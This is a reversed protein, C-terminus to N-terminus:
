LPAFGAEIPELSKASGTFTVGLSRRARWSVVAAHTTIGGNQSISLLFEDPVDVAHTFTLKAGESSLNVVLCRLRYKGAFGIRAELSLRRRRAKRPELM